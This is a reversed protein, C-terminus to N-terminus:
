KKAVTSGGLKKLVADSVDTGGFLVAEQVLIVDLKQETAVDKIATEVTKQIKESKTKSDTELKKAEPEIELQFQEAMMQLETETKNAVRAEEILKRKAAIKDKLAADAKQIEELTKRAEEYSGMVKSANVTGIKSKTEALAPSLSLLAPIVFIPIIKRM